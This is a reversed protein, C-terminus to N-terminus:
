VYVKACLGSRQSEYLILHEICAQSISVQPQNWWCKSPFKENAINSAKKPLHRKAFPACIEAFKSRINAKSSQQHFQVAIIKGFATRRCSKAQFFLKTFDVGSSCPIQLILRKVYWWGQSIQLMQRDSFFSNCPSFIFAIENTKLSYAFFLHFNTQFAYSLNPEWASCELNVMCIWAYWFTHCTIFNTGICYLILHTHDLLPFDPNLSM